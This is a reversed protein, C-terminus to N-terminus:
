LLFEDVPVMAIADGAIDLPVSSGKEYTATRKYEGKDTAPDTHVEVRDDVLNVIWYVPIAARAYIRAKERDRKLSSDAVEIACATDGLRPHHDLYDRLTGRVVAIDPEPVSDSTTVASQGRVTWGEPLLDLIKYQLLTVITDHRPGRTMMPTIWGELLELRDDEPLVGAEALRCYEEVSFKRVPFSPVAFTTPTIESGISM